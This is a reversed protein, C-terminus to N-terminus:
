HMNEENLIRKMEDIYEQEIPTLRHGKLYILSCDMRVEAGDIPRFIIDQTCQSTDGLNLGVYYAKTSRLLDYLAARDSVLIRQSVTRYDYNKVGSCYNIPAIDSQAMTAHPYQQLSEPSVSPCVSLPHQKGMFAHAQKCDLIEMSMDKNEISAKWYDRKNTPTIIIGLTFLGDYVHEITTEVSGEEFCINQFEHSSYRNYLNIIARAAVAYRVSSVSLHLIDPKNEKFYMEEIHTLMADLRGVQGLFEEGQHTLEIGNRTRNFITIGIEDELEKIGRSLASQSIYLQKAARNMSGCRNVELAFRINKINM